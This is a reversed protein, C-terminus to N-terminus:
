VELAEFADQEQKSFMKQRKMLQDFDVLHADFDPGHFCAFRTKGGISVRCAGCMGTGDVMIANLSVYTEIGATRTMDSVAKMMPVPGVALVHSIKERKMVEGLADTVFGKKGESGDDTTAIVEDCEKRMENMMLLANSTRAGVIGIVKNGLGKLDRATPLIAGTGYGGGIVICTGDHKKVHSREGLPGVIDVFTDGVNMFNIQTSTKGVSMVIIQVTGKQRDWGCVSLPIRESTGFPRVIIFQGAQMKRAILRAEIEIIFTKDALERKSVIRFSQRYKDAHTKEIKFFPLFHEAEHRVIFARDWQHRDDKGLIANFADHVKREHLPVLLGKKQMKGLTRAANKRVLPKRDSLSEFAIDFMSARLKDSFADSSIRRAIKGIAYLAISRVQFNASKAAVLIQPIAKKVEESRSYALAQIINITAFDDEWNEEWAELIEDIASSSSLAIARGLYAASESDANILEEILFPVVVRGFKAIQKETKLAIKTMGTIGTHDHHYFVTSLAVAIENKEEISLDTLTNTQDLARSVSEENDLVIHQIIQQVRETM